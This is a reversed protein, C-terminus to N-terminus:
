SILELSEQARERVREDPDEILTKLCIRVAPITVDFHHIKGLTHALEARVVSNADVQLELLMRVIDQPIEKGRLGLEGIHFVAFRRTATEDAHLLDVLIPMAHRSNVSLQLLEELYSAIDEVDKTELLLDKIAAAYRSSGMNTLAQRARTRDARTKGKRWEKMLRHEREVDIPTTGLKLTKVIAASVKTALEDPTSFFGALYKESIEDRLSQLKVAAIGTDVFEAPWDDKEDLLFCLVDKGFKLAARFEQETISLESKPPIYGYRRAFLGVYLDCRRVDDLCRTLPRKPEAVYYEMAIDVHDLGRIADRVAERYEKLDEYTSSVYIDARV